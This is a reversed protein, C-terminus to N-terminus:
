LLPPLHSLQGIEYTPQMDFPNEEGGPNYWCAHIGFEMGGRIDANINDGVILVKEKAPQGIESFTHEFFGANPKSHGIEDSVVVAQFFPQLGSRALRPRQVEKLGNTVMALRYSGALQEVLQRAGELLYGAEALNALYSRAFEKEDAQEGIESFFLEFRRSRLETRSIEGHEFAKWCAKNIRNYLHHHAEEFPIGLVRLAGSLAHRESRDFDFLTNDADFLIWQYSM